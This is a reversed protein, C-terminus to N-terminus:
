EVVLGSLSVFTGVLLFTRLEPVFGGLLTLQIGVGVLKPGTM